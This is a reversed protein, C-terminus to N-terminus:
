IRTLYSPRYFAQVTFTNLTPAPADLGDFNSDGELPKMLLQVERGELGSPPVRPLDGFAGGVPSMSTTGIVIQVADSGFQTESNTRTNIVPTGIAYGASDDLPVLAAYDLWYVAGSNGTIISANWVVPGPAALRVVGLDLTYWTNTAPITAATNETAPVGALNWSLVIESVTDTQVRAIVRYTGMHSLSTSGAAGVLGLPSFGTAQLVKPFQSATRTTEADQGTLILAQAAASNYYRSRLGWYVQNWAFSGTNAVLIRCRAPYDGAIVAPVGGSTLVGSCFGTCHLTDLTLEDGYFDPVCTLTLTIAPEVNATEMWDDPVDLEAYSIDAYVKPGLTGNRNMRQRKLTGGERQILAVKMSLDRLATEPDPATSKSSMGIGIPITITRNDIRFDAPVSGWQGQQALFADITAQGWNIGGSDGSTSGIAIGTNDPDNLSLEVRGTSVESPDLSVLWGAYGPFPM